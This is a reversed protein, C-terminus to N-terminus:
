SKTKVTANPVILRIMIMFGVCQWFSLTPLGFIFPMLWNWLLMVFWGFLLSLLIGGIIISIFTLFYTLCGDFNYNVNGM